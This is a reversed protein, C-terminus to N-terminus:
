DHPYSEEDLEVPIGDGTYASLYTQTHLYVGEPFDVSWPTLTYGNEAAEEAGIYTGNLHSPGDLALARTSTM